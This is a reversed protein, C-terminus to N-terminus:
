ASPPARPGAPGATWAPARVEPATQPPPAVPMLLPTTEIQGVPPPTLGAHLLPLCFLCLGGHDAPLATGDAAIASMGNPSCIVWGGQATPSGDAPMAGAGLLNFVLLFLGLWAGLRRGSGASAPVPATDTCTTRLPKRSM